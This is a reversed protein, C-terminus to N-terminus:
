NSGNDTTKNKKAYAEEAKFYRTIRLNNVTEPDKLRYRTDFVDLSLRDIYIDTIEKSYDKSSLGPIFFMPNFYWCDLDEDIDFMIFPNKAPDFTVVAFIDNGDRILKAEAFKEYISNVFPIDQHKLINDLGEETLTYDSMPIKGDKIIYGKYYM